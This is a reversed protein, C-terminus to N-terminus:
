AHKGWRCFGVTESPSKEESFFPTNCWSKKHLSEVMGAVYNGATEDTGVVKNGTTKDAAVLKYPVHM